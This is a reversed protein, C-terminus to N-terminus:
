ELITNDDLSNIDLVWFDPQSLIIHNSGGKEIKTLESDLLALLSSSIPQDFIVLYTDADGAVVSGVFITDVDLASQDLVWGDQALSRFIIPTLGAISEALFVASAVNMKLSNNYKILLQSVRDSLAYGAKLYGFYEIEWDDIATADVLNPYSNMAVEDMDAKLKVLQKALVRNIISNLPSNVDTIESFDRKFVPHDTRTLVEYYKQEQSM